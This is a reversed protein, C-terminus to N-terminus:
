EWESGEHGSIPHVKGYNSVRARNAIIARNDLISTKSVKSTNIWNSKKKGLFHATKNTM